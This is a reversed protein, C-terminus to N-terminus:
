NGVLQAALRKAAMRDDKGNSLRPIGDVFRFYRPVFDYELNDSVFVTERCFHRVFYENLEEGAGQRPVLLACVEELLTEDPVGTILVEAVGPCQLLQAELQHPYIVDDGRMIAHACRGLVSIQGRDNLFGRDGLRIWGDSLFTENTGMDNNVYRKCWTPKRILVEGTQGFPVDEMNSDIIKFETGPLPWGCLFNSYEDDRRTLSMSALLHSETSGYIIVLSEAVTGIAKLVKMTTPAGIAAVSRLLFVNEDRDREAEAVLSELLSPITIAHTCHEQRLAERVFRSYGKGRPVSYDVTVRTCGLAFTVSPVGGLWGFPRDNFLVSQSDLGNVSAVEYGCEALLHSTFSLLKYIGTSGSTCMYACVSAPGNDTYVEEYTGRLEEMLSIEQGKSSELVCRIVMQLCPMDPCVVRGDTIRSKAKIIEYAGKSKGPNYIVAKVRGDNLSRMFDSGDAFCIQGNM